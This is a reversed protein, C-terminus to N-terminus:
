TYYLLVLIFFKGILDTTKLAYGWKGPGKQNLARVRIEYKTESRLDTFLCSHGGLVYTCSRWDARTQRLQVEYGTVPGGGSDLSPPKWYVEFAGCSRKKIVPPEPQLPVGIIFHTHAKINFTM